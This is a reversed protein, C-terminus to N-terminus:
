PTHYEEETIGVKKRGPLGTTDDLYNERIPVMVEAEEGYFLRALAISLTLPFQKGQGQVSKEKDAVIVHFVGDKKDVSQVYQEFMQQDLRHSPRYIGGIGLSISIVWNGHVEGKVTASPRQSVTKCYVGNWDQIMVVLDNHRALLYDIEYSQMETIKKSVMEVPILPYVNRPCLPNEPAIKEKMTTM